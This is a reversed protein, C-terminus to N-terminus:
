AKSRAITTLRSTRNAETLQGDDTSAHRRGKRPLTAPEFPEIIALDGIAGENTSPEAEHITIAIESERVEASM